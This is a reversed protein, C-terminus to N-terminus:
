KKQSHKMVSKIMKGFKKDKRKKELYSSEYFASERTMKLYNEYRKKSIAEQKVANKVACGNEQTHTCDSYKCFASLEIIENFTDEIGSEIGINGLERMGPTDIIMANNELTILQRRTTTHRGKGDKDRVSQTDFFSGGLLINLLTTKGVGSSGLLCYTKGYTLQGMLSDIGAYTKNSISLVQLDPMICHIEDVKADIEELSLLDSKSLIVVPNIDGENIMALYREMRRINFNSDLSQIIFATDLNAAILQFETKKGSTKRKLVTKRPFIEHIIAFSNNDMYEACVWDGVTPFDLPSDASFMIKGTIEAKVADHNNKVLYSERDVAIVRCPELTAPKSCDLRSEFWSDFGLKKLNESTKKM